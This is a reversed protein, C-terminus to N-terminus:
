PPWDLNIKLDSKQVDWHQMFRLVCTCKNTSM